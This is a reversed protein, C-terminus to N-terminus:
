FDELDIAKKFFKLAMKRKKTMYEENITSLFKKAEEILGDSDYRNRRRIYFKMDAFVCEIINFAPTCATNFIVM